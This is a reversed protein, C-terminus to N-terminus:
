SLRPKRSKKLMQKLDEESEYMSDQGGLARLLQRIMTAHQDPEPHRITPQRTDNLNTIPQRYSQQPHKAENTPSLSNKQDAKIEPVPIRQNNETLTRSVSGATFAKGLESGTYITRSKTDLYSIGHLVGGQNHHPILSVGVRELRKQFDRLDASNDLAERTLGRIRGARDEKMKKGAKIRREVTERTPRHPLSSAKLGAGVPKGDTDIVSYLLGPKQGERHIETAQINYIALLQNFQPFTSFAFDRLVGQVVASVEDRLNGQGYEVPKLATREPRLAVHEAIRLGFDLEIQQRLRNSKEREYSDSLKRGQEDIRVSVIHVHPHETDHHQYVAYPQRSYGMGQMYQDAIAVMDQASVQEHSTLALSVHFTPQKVRGSLAARENLKKAIMAPDPQANIWQTTAFNRIALREAVGKEVKQENYYVAGGPSSGSSIRAVM